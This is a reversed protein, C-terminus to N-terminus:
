APALLEETSLIRHYPVEEIGKPWREISCDFSADRVLVCGYGNAIASGATEGLCGKTHGGVMLLTGRGIQELVSAITSSAFADMKTKAVVFDEPAVNFDEHPRPQTELVSISGESAAWHVFVRPMGRARAFEAVRVANPLAVEHFHAVADNLEELTFGEERYVELINEDTWVIRKRPQFDISVFVMDNLNLQM